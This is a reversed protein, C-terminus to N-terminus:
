CGVGICPAEPEPTDMQKIYDANKNYWSTEWANDIVYKQGNSKVEIILTLFGARELGVFTIVFTYSGPGNVITINKEENPELIYSLQGPIPYFNNIKTKPDIVSAQVELKIKKSGNKVQMTVPAADLVAVASLFSAIMLHRITM